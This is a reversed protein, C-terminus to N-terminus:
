TLELKHKTCDQDQPERHGFSYQKWFNLAVKHCSITQHILACFEAWNDAVLGSLSSQLAGMLHQLCITAPKDHILVLTAATHIKQYTPSFKLALSNEPNQLHELFTFVWTQEQIMESLRFRFAAILDAEPDHNGDGSSSAAGADPNNGELRDTLKDQLSDFRVRILKNQPFPSYPRMAILVISHELFPGIRDFNNSASITSFKLDPYARFQHGLCFTHM